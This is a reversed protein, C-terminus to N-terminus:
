RDAQVWIERLRETRVFFDESSVVMPALNAAREANAEVEHTAKCIAHASCIRTLEMRVKARDARDTIAAPDLSEIVDALFEKVAKDDSGMAAFLGISLLGAKALKDQINEDVMADALISQLRAAMDERSESM